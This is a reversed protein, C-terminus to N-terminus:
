RLSQNFRVLKWREYRPQWTVEILGCYDVRFNGRQYVPLGMLYCMLIRMWGDHTALLINESRHQSLKEKFFSDIRARVEEGTEGEPFRFDANRATFVKWIDPFKQQVEEDSRLGLLGNNFENLRPDIVPAIGLQQALPEITQQTRQFASAYIQAISKDAFYTCLKQSDQRGRGTILNDQIRLHPNYFDGDEREAHRIIYWTPMECGRERLIHKIKAGSPPGPVSFLRYHKESHLLVVLFISIPYFEAYIAYAAQSLFYIM